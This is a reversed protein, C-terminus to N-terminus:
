RKLSRLIQRAQDRLQERNTITTDCDDLYRIEEAGEVPVQEWTATSEDECLSLVAWSPLFGNYQGNPDLLQTKAQLRRVKQNLTRFDDGHHAQAPIFSAMLAGAVLGALLLAIKEKM